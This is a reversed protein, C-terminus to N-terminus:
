VTEAEPISNDVLQQVTVFMHKIARWTDRTGPYDFWSRIVGIAVWNM